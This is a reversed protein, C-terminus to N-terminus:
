QPSTRWEGSSRWERGVYWRIACFKSGSKLWDDIQNSVGRAGPRAASGHCALWRRGADGIVRFDVSYYEDEYWSYAFSASTSDGELPRFRYRFRSGLEERQKDRCHLYDRFTEALDVASMAQHESSEADFTVHDRVVPRIESPPAVDCLHPSGLEAFRRLVAPDNGRYRICEFEAAGVARFARDFENETRPQCKVFCHSSADYTFLDPAESVPVDCATCCGDVVYFPGPANKPHPRIIEAM